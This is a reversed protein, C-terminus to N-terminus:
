VIIFTTDSVISSSPKGMRSTSPVLKFGAGWYYEESVESDTDGDVWSSSVSPTDVSIQIDVLEIRYM